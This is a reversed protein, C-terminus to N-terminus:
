VESIAYYYTNKNRLEEYIYWMYEDNPNMGIPYLGTQGQMGLKAAWAGDCTQLVFHWCDLNKPDYRFAIRRENIYIDSDYSDLERIAYDFDDFVSEITTFVSSYNGTNLNLDVGIEQLLAYGLCNTVGFEIYRYSPASGYLTGGLENNIVEISVYPCASSTSDSSYFSAYGNSSGEITMLLKSNNEISEITSHTIDFSYSRYIGYGTALRIKDYETMGDIDDYDINSTIENLTILPNRAVDNTVTDKFINFNVSVVDDPDISPFSLEIISIYQANVLNHDQDVFQLRDTGALLTSSDNYGALGITIFKDRIISDYNDIITSENVLTLPYTIENNSFINADYQTEIVEGASLTYKHFSQPLIYYENSTIMYENNVQIYRECLNSYSINEKSNSPVLDKYVHTNEYYSLINKVENYNILQVSKNQDEVRKNLDSNVIEEFKNGDFYHIPKTYVRYELNGNQLRFVKQRETRLEIIEIPLKSSNTFASVKVNLGTFSVLVFLLFCFLFKM